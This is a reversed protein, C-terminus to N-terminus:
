KLGVVRKILSSDIVKKNERSGAMSKNIRPKRFSYLPCDLSPCKSVERIQDGMCSLCHDRIARSRAQPNQRGRGTRFPYLPCDVDWCNMADKSTDGCDLCRLRIAKRRNLSKSKQGTNQMDM